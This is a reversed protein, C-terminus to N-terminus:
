ERRCGDSGRDIAYARANEGGCRFLVCPPWRVAAVGLDSRTPQRWRTASDVAFLVGVPNVFFRLDGAVLPSSFEPLM